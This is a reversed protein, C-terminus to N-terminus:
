RMLLDLQTLAKSIRLAAPARGPRDVYGFLQRHVTKSLAIRLYYLWYRHEFDEPPTRGEWYGRLMPPRLYDRVFTGWYALDFVPDGALADEWDIVGTIAGEAAFVNHHGPDGHLLRIPTSQLFASAAQFARRIQDQQRADIAGIERCAQVHADLNLHLYDPWAPLVGQMKGESLARPDLLGAGSAEIRHVRALTRGWDELLADPLFQDEPKELETLRTGKAARTIQYDWPCLTRSFNTHFIEPVPVGQNRLHEALKAEILFEFAPRQMFVREARLYVVEGGPLVARWVSHFTGGPAPAIEVPEQKTNETIARKVMPAFSALEALENKRALAAALESRSLPLDTKPYFTRRRLAIFQAQAADFEKTNGNL